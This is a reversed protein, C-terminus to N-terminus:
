DMKLLSRFCTRRVRQSNRNRDLEQNIKRKIQNNQITQQIKNENNRIKKNMFHNNTPEFQRKNSCIPFTNHNKYKASMIPQNTNNNDDNKLKTRNKDTSLKDENRHMNVTQNNNDTSTNSQKLPHHLDNQTINEFETNKKHAHIQKENTKTNDKNLPQINDKLTKANVDKIIFNEPKM